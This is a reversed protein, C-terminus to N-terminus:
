LPFLVEEYQGLTLSEDSIEECASKHVFQYTRCFFHLLFPVISSNRADVRSECTRVKILWNPRRLNKEQREKTRLKIFRLNGVRPSVTFDVFRNHFQNM